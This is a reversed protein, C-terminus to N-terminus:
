RTTSTTLRTWAEAYRRGLLRASVADFHVGDGQHTLYEASVYATHPVHQSLARHAADVMVHADTWPVDAFHGIQGALFPVEPADLTTRLRRVLAHLREAYLPAREPTADAEGQHWLIGRLTGAAMAVRARRIADDWPHSDTPLYHEGPRWAEIPSGGVAAPVLGIESTSDADVLALGFARGPGVGAVAPKDFHMPDVAPVWRADRDLMRVRAHPVRDAPEVGARGAMNSQGILLFIQMPTAQGRAAALSGAHREAALVAACLLVGTLVLLRVHISMLAFVAKRTRV